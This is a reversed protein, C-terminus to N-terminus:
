RGRGEGRKEDTEQRRRYEEPPRRSYERGGRATWARDRRRVTLREREGHSLGHVFARLEREPVEPLAAAHASAWLERPGPLSMGPIVLNYQKALEHLLRPYAPWPKSETSGLQEAEPKTIAPVLQ